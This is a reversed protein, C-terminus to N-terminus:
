SFWRRSNNQKYNGSLLSGRQKRIYKELVSIAQEDADPADDHTKYGPEIGYLQELGEQTDPDSKMKAPYIIKRNQFYPHLRLIRDYKKKRQVDVKRINLNVGNKAQVEEIVQRVADNWFQSEFQWHVTVTKPLSKQFDCMWQVAPAMKSQRVFSAIYYFKGDYVGWVRVANYDNKGSYAVDWHGVIHHFQNLRPYSKQWVIMDSKFIKGEKHPRNCYEALAAIRGIEKEVEQWYEATYKSKWAPEYTVSDYADVQHVTWNPRLEILVSAIMRPTFYNNAILFRARNGDMTPLVSTLLWNALEDQKKPNRVTDKDELDDAVIYDPRINKMRLGRVDQGMGIAKSVFGNRTKFYGKEWDGITKQEGFDHILRPNGDFEARLDAQLIQAKDFNNGIVVMYHIDDQIWLWLPIMVDAIVSKAQARGWKLWAKIRKNRKVKNAIDIHFPASKIIKGTDPDTMYSALYYECFFAFDRKARAIRAQKQEPTENYDIASGNSKYFRIKSLYSDYAIKNVQKM